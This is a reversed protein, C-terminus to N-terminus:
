HQKFGRVWSKIERKILVEDKNPISDIWKLLANLWKKDVNESHAIRLKKHPTPLTKEEEALLEEYLKEGPRLGSFVIKIEDESMGSLKIMDKALDFIRVPQGMDLVFIERGKGLLSAQMVLQAAEPISMFYRTMDPHTVTIPGGTNIQQRFKPIVSGSSGLVNGFRVVVFQTGKNDQLGQCIMEALRKTAGMVNAPNVAKDTSILIFKDVKAKKSAKALRYTGLVNNNFAESVNDFEMLPVHKYAAAHFVLRPKYKVFIKELRSAHKVDGVLFVFKVSLKLNSFEQELKYLVYESIDLCVICKPNFKVIQRCLESGISGGAGSVLVTKNSILQNLGSADISVPDRGLLDEVDVRRIQSVSFRGSILDDIAPITLVQLGIQNAKELVKRREQHDITSSAIIIQRAKYFNAIRALDLISGQVKVGLIERGHMTENDDLLAVVRWRESQTLDKLLSIATAGAGYVVVPEGKVSYSGFLQYEKILRYVFRSGGMFFTLFIPDIILVSRPVRISGSFIFFIIALITGAFFITGLIRKLDLLSAFRWTSRYLGFTIFSITQVMLVLWVNQMMLDFHETPIDFNFRLLFALYWAVMAACVDHFLALISRHNILIKKM